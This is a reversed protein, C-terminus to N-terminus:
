GYLSVYEGPLSLDQKLEEIQDDDSIDQSKEFALKGFGDNYSYNRRLGSQRRNEPMNALSSVRNSAHSVKRSAPKNENFEFQEEDFSLKQDEVLDAMYDM